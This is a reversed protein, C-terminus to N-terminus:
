AAGAKSAETEGPVVNILTRLWECPQQRAQRALRNLKQMEAETMRFAFRVSKRKYKPLTAM